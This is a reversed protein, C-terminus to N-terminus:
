SQSPSEHFVSGETKAIAEYTRTRLMLNMFNEFETYFNEETVSDFFKYLDTDTYFLGFMSLLIGFHNVDKNQVWEYILDLENVTLNQSDFKLTVTCEM